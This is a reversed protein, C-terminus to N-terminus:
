HADSPTSPPSGNLLGWRAMMVRKVRTRGCGRHSGNKKIELAGSPHRVAPSVLFKKMQLLVVKSNPQLPIRLDMRQAGFFETPRHRHSYPREKRLRKRASPWWSSAEFFWVGRSFGNSVPTNAGHRKLCSNRSSSGKEFVIPPGDLPTKIAGSKEFLPSRRAAFSVHGNRGM